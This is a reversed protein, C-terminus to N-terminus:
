AAPATRGETQLAGTSTRCVLRSRGAKAATSPSATRRLLAAVAAAGSSSRIRPRHTTTPRFSLRTTATTTTTHAATRTPSAAPRSAPISAIRIARVGRSPLEETPTAPGPVRLFRSPTTPSLRARPGSQRWAAAPVEGMPCSPRQRTWRSAVTAAPRPAGARVVARAPRRAVGRRAAARRWVPLRSRARALWARVARPREMVAQRAGLDVSRAARTLGPGPSQGRAPRRRGARPGKVAVRPRARVEQTRAMAARTSQNLAQARSATVPLLAWLRWRCHLGSSRIVSRRGPSAEGRRLWRLKYSWSARRTPCLKEM